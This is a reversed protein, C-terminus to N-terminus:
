SQSSSPPDEPESSCTLLQLWAPPEPQAAPYAYTHAAAASCTLRDADEEEAIKVSQQSQLATLEHTPFADWCGGLVCSSGM